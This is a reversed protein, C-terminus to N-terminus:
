IRICPTARSSWPSIATRRRATTATNAMSGYLDGPQHRGSRRDHALTTSKGCGSPGVFVIFEKKQIDLNFDYVAQVNNEYVKDVHRLSVYAFDKPKEHATEEEVAKSRAKARQAKTQGPSAMLRPRTVPQKKRSYPM